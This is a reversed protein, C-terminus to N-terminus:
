ASVLGGDLTLPHGMLMSLGFTSGLRPPTGGCEGISEEFPVLHGEPGQVGVVPQVEVAALMCGVMALLVALAM